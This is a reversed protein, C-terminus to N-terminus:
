YDQYKPKLIESYIVAKRLDFDEMLEHVGEQQNGDPTALDYSHGSADKTLRGGETAIMNRVTADANSEGKKAQTRSANTMQRPSETARAPTVAPKPITPAQPAMVNREMQQAIIQRWPNDEEEDADIPPPASQNKANKQAKIFMGILSAVLVLGYLILEFSNEM